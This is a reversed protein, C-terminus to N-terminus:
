AVGRLIAIAGQAIRIMKEERAWVPLKCSLTHAFSERSRPLRRFYDLQTQAEHSDMPFKGWKGYGTHVWVMGDDCLFPKTWNWQAKPANGKKPTKAASNRTELWEDWSYPNNESKDANVPTPTPAHVFRSVDGWKHGWRILSQYRELTRDKPEIFPIGLLDFYAQEDPIHLKQVNDGKSWIYGGEMRFPAHYKAFTIMMHKNKDAPGTRLEYEYGRNGMDCLFLDFKITAGGHTFVFARYKEGWRYSKKGTKENTYEKKAIVGDRVLEDMHALLTPKAIAVVEVDGIDPKERRYSGGPAIWDCHPALLAVMAEVVPTATQRAIRQGESM